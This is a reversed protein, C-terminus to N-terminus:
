RERVLHTRLSLSLDDAETALAKVWHTLEGIWTKKKNLLSLLYTCSTRLGLICKAATTSERRDKLSTTNITNQCIDKSQLRVLFKEKGFNSNGLM